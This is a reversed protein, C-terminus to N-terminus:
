GSCSFSFNNFNFSTFFFSINYVWNRLYNNGFTGLYFLFLIVQLTKMNEKYIFLYIYIMLEDFYTLAICSALPPMHPIENFVLFVNIQKGM